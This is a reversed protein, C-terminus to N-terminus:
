GGSAQRDGHHTAVAETRLKCAADFRRGGRTALDHRRNHANSGENENIGLAYLINQQTEIRKNEAIKEKLSSAAYALVSGVAIVMGVAFFFTYTNKDTRREM